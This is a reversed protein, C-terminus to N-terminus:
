IKNASNDLRKLANKFIRRREESNELLYFIKETWNKINNDLLIGDKNNNIFNSFPEINSYLGVAGIRTTDFFKTPSRFDNFNSRFIPNLVIDVKRTSTDIFFTEWDMPYIVKLRPISRFYNRWKKDLYIEILCDKRNSQIEEFLIRLWKLEKVHSTTGLYAIKYLKREPSTSYHSLTLLRIDIKNNPIKERVKKELRKNTVWIENIFLYFFFKYCYTNLIIKLKYFLPLDSFINLELLNDDILLVIRKSKRKLRILDFFINFPIYRVLIITKFKDLSSKKLQKPNLVNSKQKNLWYFITPNIVNSIIVM